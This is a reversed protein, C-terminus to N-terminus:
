PAQRRKKSRRWRIDKLSGANWVRELLGDLREVNRVAQVRQVIDPPLEGFKLTLLRLIDEQKAKVMGRAEGRAEGEERWVDIMTKFVKRVERGGRRSHMAQEAIERLREHEELPRRHQVLLLLFYMAEAWAIQEEQPLTLLWNMADQYASEMDAPLADEARMARLIWGLPHNTGTLRETPTQKLPLYLADFRPTFRELPSPLEMLAEVSLNPTWRRRGTYFVIPVIPRLRWESVPTKKELYERRQLDWLQTIYLLLRLGMMPDPRSQHEILIYILIERVKGSVLDRYPALHIVDSEKKRLDDPIFTRNVTRARAYDIAAALEPALIQLLGRLNSPRSLLWQVGRDAFERVPPLHSTDLVVNGGVRLLPVIM